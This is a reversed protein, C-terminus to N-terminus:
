SKILVTCSKLLIAFPMRSISLLLVGTSLLSLIGILAPTEAAELNHEWNAVMLKATRAISDQLTPLNVVLNETQFLTRCREAYNQVRKQQVQDRSVAFRLQSVISNQQFYEGTVVYEHRKQM